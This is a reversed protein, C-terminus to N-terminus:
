EFSLYPALRQREKEGFEELLLLEKWGTLRGRRARLQCLIRAQANSLYPHRALDGYSLQNVRLPTIGATDVCFWPALSQYREEDIGYVERLQEVSYFGGLLQRFKVIRRAFVPGIGPVRKLSTTDAANLEVITGPPYKQSVYPQYFKRREKKPKATARQPLPRRAPATDPAAPREPKLSDGAGTEPPALPSAVAQVPEEPSALSPNFVYLVVWGAIMLFLLLSLARRDARTFYFFDKFNMTLRNIFHNYLFIMGASRFVAPM